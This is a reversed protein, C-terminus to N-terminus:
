LTEEGFFLFQSLFFPDFMEQALGPDFSDFEEFVKVPGEVGFDGPVFNDLKALDLPEFFRAVQHDDAGGADAFGMDGGGEAMFGNELAALGHEEGQKIKMGLQGFGFVEEALDFIIGPDGDETQIFQPIDDRGFFLRVPDELDDGLSGLYGGGQDGRVEDRGIPSFDKIGDGCRGDQITQAQISLKNGKFPSRISTFFLWRVWLDFFSFM